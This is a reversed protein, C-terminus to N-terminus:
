PTAYHTTSFVGDHRVNLQTNPTAYHTTSFVGDHRVNLQTNIFYGM